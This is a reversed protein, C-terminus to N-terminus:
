LLYFGHSKEICVAPVLYPLRDGAVALAADHRRQADEPTDEHKGYQQTGAHPQPAQEPRLQAVHRGVRQEYLRRLGRKGVLAHGLVAPPAHVVVVHFVDSPELLHLVGRADVPAPLDMAAVVFALAVIRQHAVHGVVLLDVRLLDDVAAEDVVDVHRLLALDADDTGLDLFVQERSHFVRGALDDLDVVAIEGDDADHPALARGHREAVDFARDYGRDRERLLHVAPAVRDVHQGDGAPLVGRAFLDFGGALRHDEGLM